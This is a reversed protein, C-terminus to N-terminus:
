DMAMEVPGLEGETSVREAELELGPGPHQPKHTASFEQAAQEGGPVRLFARKAGPIEVEGILEGRGGIGGGVRHPELDETQGLFGGAVAFDAIGPHFEGLFARLFHQSRKGGRYRRTAAQGSGVAPGLSGRNFISSRALAPTPIW